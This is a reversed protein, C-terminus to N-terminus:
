VRQALWLQLNAFETTGDEQVQVIIVEDGESVGLGISTEYSGAATAKTVTFSGCTGATLNILLFVSDATSGSLTAAAWNAYRVTATVPWKLGTGHTLDYQYIRTVLPNTTKSTFASIRARIMYYRGTDGTVGSLGTGWDTPPVFRLKKSGTADVLLASTEDLTPTLTAWTGDENLYEWVVTASFAVAKTGITIDAGYWKATSGMIFADNEAPSSPFCIVDNATANNAETTYATYASTTGYDQQAALGTAQEPNSGLHVGDSGSATDVGLTGPLFVHVPVYSLPYKSYRGLM